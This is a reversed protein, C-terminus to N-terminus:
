LEREKEEMNDTQGKLRERGGREEGDRAVNEV